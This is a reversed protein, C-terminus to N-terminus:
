RSQDRQIATLSTNPSHAFCLTYRLWDLICQGVGAVETHPEIGSEDLAALSENAEAWRSGCVEHEIHWMAQRDPNFGLAFLSLGIGLLANGLLVECIQNFREPM